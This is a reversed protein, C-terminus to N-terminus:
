KDNLGKLYRIVHDGDEYACIKVVAQCTSDYNCEPNPRFNNLEQWLKKLKTYYSSISSYGQKYTFIEEQIDSIRFADGKYIQDKLETWMEVVNDM